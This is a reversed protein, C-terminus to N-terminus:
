ARSATLLAESVAIHARWPQSQEVRARDAPAALCMAVAEYGVMGPAPTVRYPPSHNPPFLFVAEAPGVAGLDLIGNSRTILFLTRESREGREAQARLDRILRRQLDGELGYEPLDVVLNRHNDAELGALLPVLIAVQPNASELDEGAIRALARAVRTRLAPEAALREFAARGGDDVRDLDVSRTGPLHKELAIQFRTKGSGMPGILYTIAATDRLEFREGNWPWPLDFAALPASPIPPPALATRLAAAQAQLRSLQEVLVAEREQPADLLRGIQALSLGLGRLATIERAKAMTEPGYARWGAPNRDPAILGRSEYLRLAKTSVKLRRAAASPSLFM